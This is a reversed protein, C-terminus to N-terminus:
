APTVVTVIMPKPGLTITRRPTLRTDPSVLVAQVRSHL